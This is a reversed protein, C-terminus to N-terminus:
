FFHLQNILNNAQLDGPTTGSADILLFYQSCGLLFRYLTGPQSWFLFFVGGVKSVQSDPTLPVWLPPFWLGELESAAIVPINNTQSIILVSGSNYSRRCSSSQSTRQPWCASSARGHWCKDKPWRQLELHRRVALRLGSFLHWAASLRGLQRCSRDCGRGFLHWAASLLTKVASAAWTPDELWKIPRHKFRRICYTAKDAKVLILIWGPACSLHWMSCRLNRAKCKASCVWIYYTKRKNVGLLVLVKWLPAYRSENIPMKTEEKSM